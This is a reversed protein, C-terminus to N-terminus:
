PWRLKMWLRYYRIGLQYSYSLLFMPIRQNIDSVSLIPILEGNELEYLNDTSDDVITM